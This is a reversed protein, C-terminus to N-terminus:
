MMLQAGKKDVIKNAWIPFGSDADVAGKKRGWTDSSDRTRRNRVNKKVDVGERM